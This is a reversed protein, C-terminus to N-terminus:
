SNPRAGKAQLEVFLEEYVAAVAAPSAHGEVWARAARGMRAMGASDRLLARIAEVFASVDGPAVAVGGGSEALIRPVETGADIAAVIPRGAALISYTKSPVSVAALGARLPVVHIDASALVDGLRDAPQYPAFRVNALGTARRQLDALAAGGGNIVFTVDPLALAADILMDLSQSLGVNGAYMVVPEAGIGLERRYATTREGPRIADTDVFNPVVRVKGHDNPPLKAVINRRLDESLVTVAGSAKYSAREVWRAAELIRRNAIAGTREAADPWVDQVNFVLPGRRALHVLWGAIGLTPPPSMALIGDVRRGGRAGTLAAAALALTSFGAFGLARRALHSRDGGPFPHVRTVTGWPVHERRGLAGTWGPEIRHDRYWPLATVVHLEHGREALEHVLRTMVVGTPATDPAFHPCIVVLKM